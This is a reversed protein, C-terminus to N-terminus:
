PWHSHYWQYYEIGMIKANSVSISVADSVSLTFPGKPTFCVSSHYKVPESELTVTERAITIRSFVLTDVSSWSCKEGMTAITYFGNYKGINIMEDMYLLSHLDRSSYIRLSSMRVDTGINIMEDMYLLSHLDRSSYIRLSYMRVDTGTENSVYGINLLPDTSVCVGRRLKIKIWNRVSELCFVWFLLNGGGRM